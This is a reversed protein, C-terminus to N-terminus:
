NSRGDALNLMKTGFLSVSDFNRVEGHGQRDEQRSQSQRAASREAKQRKRRFASATTADLIEKM